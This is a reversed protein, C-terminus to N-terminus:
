LSLEAQEAAVVPVLVGFAEGYDISFRVSTIANRDAGLEVLRSLVQELEPDSAECLVVRNASESLADCDICMVSGGQAASDLNELADSGCFPCRKLTVWNM